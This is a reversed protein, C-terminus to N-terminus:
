AHSTFKGARKEEGGSFPARAGAVFPVRPSSKGRNGAIERWGHSDIPGWVGHSQVLESDDGEEYESPVEADSPQPTSVYGETDELEALARRHLESYMRMADRTAKVLDQSAKLLSKGVTQGRAEKGRERNAKEKEARAAMEEAILPETPPDKSDLVQHNDYAVCAARLEEVQKDSM